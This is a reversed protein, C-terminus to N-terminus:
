AFQTEKHHAIRSEWGELIQAARAEESEREHKSRPDNPLPQPRLHTYRILMFPGYQGLWDMARPLTKAEQDLWELWNFLRASKRGRSNRGSM